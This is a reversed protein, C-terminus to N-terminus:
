YLVPDVLPSAKPQPPVRDRAFPLEDDSHARNGAADVLSVTAFVILRKATRKVKVRTPDPTNSSEQPKLPVLRPLNDILVLTQGDYLNVTV